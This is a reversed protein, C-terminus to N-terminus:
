REGCVRRLNAWSGQQGTRATRTSRTDHATLVLISYRLRSLARGMGVRRVADGDIDHPGVRRIGFDVHQSLLLHAVIDDRAAGRVLAGDLEVHVIEVRIEGLAHDHGDWVLGDELCDVADGSPLDLVLTEFAAPCGSNGSVLLLAILRPSM